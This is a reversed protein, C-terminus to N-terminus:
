ENSTELLNIAERIAQTKSWNKKACIAILANSQEVSIRINMSIMPQPGSTDSTTTASTTQTPPAARKRTKKVESLYSDDSM